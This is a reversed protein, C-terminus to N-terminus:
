RAWSENLRLLVPVDSGGPIRYPIHISIGVHDAAQHEPRVLVDVSWSEGPPITVLASAPVRWGDWGGLMGFQLVLQRFSRPGGKEGTVTVPIYDATLYRLGVPLVALPKRSANTFTLRLGTETPEGKLHVPADREAKGRMPQPSDFGTWAIESHDMVSAAPGDFLSGSGEEYVLNGTRLDEDLRRLLTPMDPYPGLRDGTGEVSVDNSSMNINATGDRTGMYFLGYAGREAWTALEADGADLSAVLARVVRPMDRSSPFERFYHAKQILQVMELVATRRVEPTEAAEYEDALFAAAIRFGAGALAARRTDFGLKGIEERLAAPDARDVGRCAVQLLPLAAERGGAVREAMPAIRERLLAATRATGTAAIAKGLFADTPGGEFKEILKAEQSPDGGCAEGLGLAFSDQESESLKAVEGEDLLKWLARFDPRPEKRFRGGKVLEKFSKRGPVEDSDWGREGMVKGREGTGGERVLVLGAMEHVVGVTGGFSIKGKEPKVETIETGHLFRIVRELAIAADAAPSGKTGTRKWADELLPKVAREKGELIRKVLTTPSDGHYDRPLGGAIGVLSALDNRLATEDDGAARAAPSPDIFPLLLVLPVAAVISRGRMRPIGV